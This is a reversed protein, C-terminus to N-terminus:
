LLKQGILHCVSLVSAECYPNVCNKRFIPFITVRDKFFGHLDTNCLMQTMQTSDNDGRTFYGNQLRKGVQSKAM